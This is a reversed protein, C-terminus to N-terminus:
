RGTTISVRSLACCENVVNRFVVELILVVDINRLIKRVDMWRADDKVMHLVDVVKKLM